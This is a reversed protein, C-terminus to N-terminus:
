INCLIVYIKESICSLIVNHIEWLFWLIDVKVIFFICESYFVVPVRNEALAANMLKNKKSMKDRFDEDDGQRSLM